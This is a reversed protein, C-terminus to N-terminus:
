ADCKKWEHTEKTGVITTNNMFARDVKDVREMSELKNWISLTKKKTCLFDECVSVSGCCIKSFFFFFGSEVTKCRSHHFKYVYILSVEYEKGWGNNIYNLKLKSINAHAKHRQQWQTIVDDHAVILSFRGSIWFLPLSYFLFTGRRTFLKSQKTLERECERGFVTRMRAVEQTLVTKYAIVELFLHFTENGSNQEFETKKLRAKIVPEANIHRKKQFKWKTKQKM